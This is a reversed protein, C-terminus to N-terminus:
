LPRDIFRDLGDAEVADVIQSRDRRRRAIDGREGCGHVRLAMDSKM